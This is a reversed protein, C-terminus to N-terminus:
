KLSGVLRLWGMIARRGLRSVCVCVWVCGCRTYYCSPLSSDSRAEASYLRKLLARKCFLGIMKLLRSITAVGYGMRRARKEKKEKKRREKEEGRKRESEKPFFFLCLFFLSFFDKKGRRERDKRGGDRGEEVNWKKKISEKKRKRERERKKKRM